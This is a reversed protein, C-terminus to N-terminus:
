VRCLPRAYSRFDLSHTAALKPDLRNIIGVLVLQCVFDAAEAPSLHDKLCTSFFPTAYYLDFRQKLDQSAEVYIRAFEDPEPITVGAGIQSLFVSTKEEKTENENWGRRIHQFRKADFAVVKM